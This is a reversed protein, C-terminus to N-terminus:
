NQKKWVAMLEPSGQERIGNDTLIEDTAAVTDARPLVLTEGGTRLDFEVRVFEDKLDRLVAVADVLNKVQALKVPDTGAAQLLGTLNTLLQEVSGIVTDTDQVDALLDDILAMIDGGKGILVDLKREIESLHWLVRRRFGLRSLRMAWEPWCTM